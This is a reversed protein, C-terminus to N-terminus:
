ATRTPALLSQALAGYRGLLWPATLLGLAIFAIGLAVSLWATSATTVHVFAYWNNGHAAVIPHWVAPMIVGFLGWAILGAPALALLWGVLTDVTIWVLDRWTAPDGILFSFRAWFSLAQGDRRAPERRYPDGIAVGCWDGSLRRVRTELRRIARVTVPITPLGIGVPALTVATAFALWLGVGVLTLGVLAIGRGAAVAGRTAWNGGRDPGADPGTVGSKTPGPDASACGPLWSLWRPLYWCRDGLLTMAAPLLVGRVITADLAIATALGVGLMKLEVQGMGIFISFVAVMILAASSVVGASSAIGATVAGATTEGRRRSEGIRSVIFVHYDMSIGFLFTFLFLPVWPTIAGSSAYGLLGQLRGDQFIVTILGYAATVSLFNLAISVLPLVVSRFSLLLLCFAV